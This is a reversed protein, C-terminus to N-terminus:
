TTGGETPHPPQGAPRHGTIRWAVKVHPQDTAIVFRGDWPEAVVCTGCAPDIARLTYELGTPMSGADAPLDVTAYGRGDTWVEGEYFAGDEKASGTPKAM